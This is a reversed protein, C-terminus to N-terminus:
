SNESCWQISEANSAHFLFSIDQKVPEFQNGPWAQYRGTFLSLPQLYIFSRWSASPLISFFIAQLHKTQAARFLLLPKRPPATTFFRGGICSVRTWDRSPSSGRSSSIAVWELIRAQFIAHVSSGPPSRDMLDWLSVVSWSLVCSCLCFYIHSKLSCNSHGLDQSSNLNHHQVGWQFHSTWSGTHHLVSTPNLKQLSMSSSTLPCAMSSSQWGTRKSSSGRYGMPSGNISPHQAQHLPGVPVTQVTNQGCNKM